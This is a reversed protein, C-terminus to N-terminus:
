EGEIHPREEEAPTGTEPDIWDAIGIEAEAEEVTEGPEPAGDGSAQMDQVAELLTGFPGHERGDKEKSQWHFGDPREVIRTADYDPPTEPIVQTM